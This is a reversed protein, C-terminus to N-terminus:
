IIRVSLLRSRIASISPPMLFSTLTPQATSRLSHEMQPASLRFPSQPWLFPSRYSPASHKVRSIPALSAYSNEKTATGAWGAAPMTFPM